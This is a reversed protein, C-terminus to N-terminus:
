PRPLVPATVQGAFSLGQTRRSSLQSLGDWPSGLRSGSTHQSPFSFPRPELIAAANGLLLFPLPLKQSLFLQFHWQRRTHLLPQVGLEGHTM